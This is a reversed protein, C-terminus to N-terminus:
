AIACMLASSYSVRFSWRRMGGGIRIDKPDFISGLSAKVVNTETWVFFRRLFLTILASAVRGTLVVMSNFVYGTPAYKWGLLTKDENIIRGLGTFVFRILAQLAFLLFPPRPTNYV